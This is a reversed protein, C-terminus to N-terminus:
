LKTSQVFVENDVTLLRPQNEKLDEDKVMYSDYLIKTQYEYGWVM